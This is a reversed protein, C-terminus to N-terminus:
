TSFSSADDERRRPDWLANKFHHPSGSSCFLKQMMNVVKGKEPASGIKYLELAASLQVALAVSAESSSNLGQGGPAFPCM